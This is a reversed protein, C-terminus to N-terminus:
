KLKALLIQYFAETGQASYNLVDYGRSRIHLPLPSGDMNIVIIRSQTNIAEELESFFFRYAETRMTFVILFVDCKQIAEFIEHEKGYITEPEIYCSIGHYELVGKMSFAAQRDMQSSCIFVSPMGSNHEFSDNGAASTVPQAPASFTQVPQPVAPPTHQPLAANNWLAAYNLPNNQPMPIPMPASEPVPPLKVPEGPYLVLETETFKGFERGSLCSVLGALLNAIKLESPMKEPTVAYSRWLVFSTNETSEAYLILTDANKGEMQIKLSSIEGYQISHCPELFEKWFIETDSFATGEKGYGFLTFNYFLFIDPIIKSWKRVNKMCKQFHRNTRFYLAYGKLNQNSFASEIWAIQERSLM